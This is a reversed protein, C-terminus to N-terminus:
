EEARDSKVDNEGLQICSACILKASKKVKKQM